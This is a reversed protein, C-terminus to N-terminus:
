RLALGLLILDSSVHRGGRSILIKNPVRGGKREQMIQNRRGRASGGAFRNSRGGISCIGAVPVRSHVIKHENAVTERNGRERKRERKRNKDILRVDRRRSNASRQRAM